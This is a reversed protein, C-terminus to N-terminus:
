YNTFCASALASTRLSSHAGVGTRPHSLCVLTDQAPAQNLPLPNPGLSEMELLNGPPALATSQPDDGFAGPLIRFLSLGFPLRIM